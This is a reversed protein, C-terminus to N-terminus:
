LDTRDKVGHWKKFRKIYGGVSERADEEVADFGENVPILPLVDRTYERQRM